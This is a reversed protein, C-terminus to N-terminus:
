GLAERILEDLMGEPIKSDKFLEAWLERFPICDWYFAKIEEKSKGKKAMERIDDPMGNLLSKRTGSVGYIGMFKRCLKVQRELPMNAIKKGLFKNVAKSAMSEIKATDIKPM